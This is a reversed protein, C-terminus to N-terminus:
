RVLRLEGPVLRMPAFTPTGFAGANVGVTGDLQYDVSGGLAM